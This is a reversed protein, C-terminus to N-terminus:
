LLRLGLSVGNIDVVEGDAKVSAVDIQSALVEEAIKDGFANIAEQVNSDTTSKLHIRDSIDM